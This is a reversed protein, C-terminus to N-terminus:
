EWEGLRASKQYKYVQFGKIFLDFMHEFAKFHVLIKLNKTDSQLSKM